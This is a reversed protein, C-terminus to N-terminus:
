LVAHPPVPAWGCFDGATRWVVWSPAWATDPVWVWGCRNHLQWRGYHFPAWGWSYDSQWYWGCDSNLWHGGDCYPRWGHNILVVRPQWCWGVGSEALRIVDAAAPSINTAVTTAGATMSPVTDSTSEQANTFNLPLALVALLGMMKKM